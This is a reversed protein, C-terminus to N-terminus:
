RYVSGWLNMESYNLGEDLWPAAMWTTTAFGTPTLAAAFTRVVGDWQTVVQQLPGWGQGPRYLVTFVDYNAHPNANQITVGVAEGQINMATAVLGRATPANPFPITEVARWDNSGGAVYRHEVGSRALWYARAAGASDMVVRAGGGGTETVVSSTQWAGNFFRLARLGPAIGTTTKRFLVLTRQEGAVAFDILSADADLVVEEAGFTTAEASRRRIAVQRQGAVNEGLYVVEASGDDRVVAQPNFPQNAAIAQPSSWGAGPQYLAVYLTSQGREVWAAIARGGPAREFDIDYPSEAYGLRRSPGWSNSAAVYESVYLEGPGDGSHHAVLVNGADDMRIWAQTSLDGHYDVRATERWRRTADGSDTSGSDGGATGGGTNGAGNGSGTGGTAGSAGGTTASSGGGDGGGTVTSETSPLPSSSGGGDDDGSCAALGGIFALLVVIGKVGRM